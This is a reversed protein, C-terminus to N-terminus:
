VRFVSRSQCSCIREACIRRNTFDSFGLDYLLVMNAVSQEAEVMDLIKEDRIGLKNKLVPVDPYLYIDNM